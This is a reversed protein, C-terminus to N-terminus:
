QTILGHRKRKTSSEGQVDVLVRPAVNLRPINKLWTNAQLTQKGANNCFWRPLGNIPGIEFQRGFRKNM